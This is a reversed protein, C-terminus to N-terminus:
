GEMGAMRDLIRVAEFAVDSIVRVEERLTRVEEVLKNFETRSVVSAGPGPLLLGSATKHMTTQLKEVRSALDRILVNHNAVEYELHDSM